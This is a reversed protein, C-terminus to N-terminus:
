WPKEPRFPLEFVKKENMFTKFVIKKDIIEYEIGLAMCAGDLKGKAYTIEKPEGLMTNTYTSKVNEYDEVLIRFLEERDINAGKLFLIIVEKM